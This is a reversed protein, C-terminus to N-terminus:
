FFMLTAKAPRHVKYGKLNEGTFFFKSCLMFDDKLFVKKENINYDKHVIVLKYINNKVKMFSRWKLTWHYNKMSIKVYLHSVDNAKQFTYLM